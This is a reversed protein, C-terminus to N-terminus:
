KVVVKIFMKGTGTLLNAFYMGTPVDNLNNWNATHEGAALRGKAVTTVRRGNMDFIELVVESAEALNFSLQTFDAAPNPSSKLNLTHDYAINSVSVPAPYNCLFRMGIAGGDTAATASM